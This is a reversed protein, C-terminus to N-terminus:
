FWHTQRSANWLMFTGGQTFDRYPSIRVNVEVRLLIAILANKM